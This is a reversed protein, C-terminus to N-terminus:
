KNKVFKDTCIIFADIEKQKNWAPLACYFSRRIRRLKNVKKRQEKKL